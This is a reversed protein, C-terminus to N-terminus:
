YVALINIPKSTNASSSLLTIQVITKASNITAILPSGENASMAVILKANAINNDIDSINKLAYSSNDFTFWINEYLVINQLVNINGSAM